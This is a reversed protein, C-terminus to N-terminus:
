SHLWYKRRGNPLIQANGALLISPSGRLFGLPGVSFELVGTWLFLSFYPISRSEENLDQLVLSPVKGLPFSAERKAKKLSHAQTHAALWATLPTGLSLLQLLFLSTFHSLSAWLARPSNETEWLWEGMVVLLSISSRLYRWASVSYIVRCTSFGWFRPSAPPCGSASCVRSVLETRLTLVLLVEVFAWHCQIFGSSHGVVLPGSQM